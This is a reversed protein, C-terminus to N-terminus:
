KSSLIAAIFYEFIHPMLEIARDMGEEIATPSKM